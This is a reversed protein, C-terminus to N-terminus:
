EYLYASYLGYDGPTGGTKGTVVHRIFAGKVTNENGSGTYETVLFAAFGVVKVNKPNGDEEVNKVNIIPVILIRSCGEQFSNVTCCPSHDCQDIRHEIGDQTPGSMNGNEVPIIDGISIQGDYGNRIDKEYNNAGNGTLCLAGFWGPYHNKGAGAKLTVIKGFEFNDELVGFPVIGTTSSIPAVKAAARAKVQGFDRNFVRAFHLTVQRDAQGSISCNSAGIQFDCEDQVAGNLRAFDRATQLALDPDNPLHQVGALVASDLANVLRARNIFLQGADLALAAVGIMVVMGIAVLAIASGQESKIATVIKV